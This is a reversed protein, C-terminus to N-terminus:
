NIPTSEDPGSGSGESESSDKSKDSVINCFDQKMVGLISQPLPELVSLEEIVQPIDNTLRIIFQIYQTQYFGKNSIAGFIPSTMQANYQNAMAIRNYIISINRQLPLGLLAFRGSAVASEKADVVISETNLSNTGDTKWKTTTGKAYGFVNVLEERLSNQIDRKLEQDVHRRHASQSWIGLLFAAFVGLFTSFFALM